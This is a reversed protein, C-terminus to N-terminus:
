IRIEIPPLKARRRCYNVARIQDRVLKQYTKEGYAELYREKNNLLDNLLREEMEATRRWYIREKRRRKRFEEKLKMVDRWLFVPLDTLSQIKRKQYYSSVYIEADEPIYLREAKIRWENEYIWTRYRYDDFLDSYERRLQEETTLHQLWYPTLESLKRIEHDDVAYFVPKVGKKKLYSFPFKIYTDLEVYGLMLALEQVNSLHRLPNTTFCIMGKHLHHHGTHKPNSSLFGDKLIRQLRKFSTTHYLYDDELFAKVYLGRNFEKWIQYYDLKEKLRKVEKVIYESVDLGREGL